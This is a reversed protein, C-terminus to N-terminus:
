TSSGDDGQIGIPAGIALTFRMPGSPTDADVKASAAISESKWGNKNAQYWRIAGLRAKLDADQKITKMLSGMVEEDIWEKGGALEAAFHKELTAVDIGYPWNVLRATAERSMGQAMALCVTMRQDETPQFPAIGGHEAIKRSRGKPAM